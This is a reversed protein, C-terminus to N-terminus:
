REQINSFQSLSMLQIRPNKQALNREQKTNYGWDALYLKVQELDEQQRVLDLTKLRDEIFWIDLPESEQLDILARLIEYKPRKNEKGFIQKNELDIGAQGLIQKVFRSEKTTIIYFQTSSNLIRQITKIVGPYFKHLDLWAGLDRAIERDRITDLLQAIYKKNLNEWVIIQEAVEAWDFFIKEEPVDLILARLLIPMEWGTEIVPRLRYFRSALNEVISRDRDGWLEYYTKKTSQFYESLGDCIVGDFDLALLDPMKLLIMIKLYSVWRLFITIM